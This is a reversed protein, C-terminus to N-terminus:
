DDFLHASVVASLDSEAVIGDHRRVVMRAQYRYVHGPQVQQDVYSGVPLLAASHQQLPLQGEARYLLFGLLKSSEPAAGDLKLVITGGSVSAVSLAPSHPMPQIGVVPSTVFTGALGGKQMTQLRYQYLEGTRADTDYWRIVNGQREAPAPNSLVITKVPQYRSACGTCNLDTCVRREIQFSELDNLRHGARDRVPLEFSLRLQSGSQELRVQPPQAILQDPYILPGKKGCGATCLLATTLLASRKWFM